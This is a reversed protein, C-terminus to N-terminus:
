YKQCQMLDMMNNAKEICPLSKEMEKMGEDIDKLMSKKDEASWSFDEEADDEVEGMGSEQILTNVKEMCTKAEKKSDAKTLCEKGFKMAELMKPMGNKLKELQGQMGKSNAIASVIVEEQEEKSMNPNAAIKEQGEKLAKGMEDMQEEVTITETKAEQVVKSKEVNENSDGCGVFGVILTTVLLIHSLKEM